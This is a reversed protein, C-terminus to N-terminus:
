NKDIMKMSYVLTRLGKKCFSDLHEKTSSYIYSKSYRNIKDLIITDAGKMYLKINGGEDKVLISSRKRESSYEFRHLVQFEHEKDLIKVRSIDGSREIFEVGIEKASQVLVVEDPSSGSYYKEGTENDKETLVNHNLSM